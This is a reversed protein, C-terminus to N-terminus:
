DSVAAGSFSLSYMRRDEEGKHENFLLLISAVGCDAKYISLLRGFHKDTLSRKPIFDAYAAWDAHFLSNALNPHYVHVKIDFHEDNLALTSTRSLFTLHMPTMKGAKPEVIYRMDLQYDESALVLDYKLFDDKRLMQIRYMGEVPEVFQLQTRKLKKTFQHTYHIQAHSWTYMVLNLSLILLADRLTIM